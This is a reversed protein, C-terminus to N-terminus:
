SSPLKENLMEELAIFCCVVFLKSKDQRVKEWLSNESWVGETIEHARNLLKSTDM